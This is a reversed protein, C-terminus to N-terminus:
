NDLETKQYKVFEEKLWTRIEMVQEAMGAPIQFNSDEAFIKSLIELSKQSLM